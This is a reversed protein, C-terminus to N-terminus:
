CAMLLDDSDMWLTPACHRLKFAIYRSRLVTQHLLAHCCTNVGGTFILINFRKQGIVSNEWLSENRKVIKMKNTM